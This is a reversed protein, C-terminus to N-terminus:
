FIHKIGKRNESSTEHCIFGNAKSEVSPKFEEIGYLRNRLLKTYCVNYSTIRNVKFDDRKLGPAAVDILYENDNEKVNVAPLTSNTSSYNSNNWDM